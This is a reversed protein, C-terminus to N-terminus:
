DKDCFTEMLERARAIEVAKEEDDLTKRGGSETPLAIRQGSILAAYQARIRQCDQKRQAARAADGEAKERAEAAAAQRKRFEEDRRGTQSKEQAPAPVVAVADNGPETDGEGGEMVETKDSDPETVAVPPPERKSVQVGPQNLPPKDSFHTRGDKDKWQYIQANAPLAIALGFILTILCVPRKV